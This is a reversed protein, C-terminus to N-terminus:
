DKVHSVTSTLATALFDIMAAMVSAYHTEGIQNRHLTLLTVASIVRAYLVPEGAIIEGARQKQELYPVLLDLGSQNSQALAEPPVRAALQQLEEPHTLMRRTLANTELERVIETLLAIIGQRATPANDLANQIHAKIAPGDEALLELYLAEKSEFLLYFSSKAIGLPQTLEDLSTKKLGQRTFLDRAVGLLQQRLQAKETETFSRAM